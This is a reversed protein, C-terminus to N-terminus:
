DLRKLIIDSSTCFKEEYGELILRCKAGSALLKPEYIIWTPRYDSNNMLDRIIIRDMGETDITLFDFDKPVNNEDLISKLTRIQVKVVKVKKNRGKVLSSRGLPHTIYFNTEGGRYSVAVNVLTADLGKVDKQLQLFSEELPEILIGRWGDLLFNYSNSFQKGKAGVGVLVKHTPPEKEFFEKLISYEGERSFDQVMLIYIRGILGILGILPFSVIGCLPM